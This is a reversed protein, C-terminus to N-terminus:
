RHSSSRGWRFADLRRGEWEAELLCRSQGLAPCCGCRRGAGCPRRGGGQWRRQVGVPLTEARSTGGSRAMLPTTCSGGGRSSGRGPGGAASNMWGYASTRWSRWLGLSLWCLPTMLRRRGHLLTRVWNRGRTRVKSQVKKKEPFTRFFAQIGEDTGGHLRSSSSSGQGPSFVKSFKVLLFILSKSWIRQQVRDLSLVKLVEM